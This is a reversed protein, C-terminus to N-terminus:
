STITSVSLVAPLYAAVQSFSRGEDASAWVEGNTTGFYIGAPDLRDAAMSERMVELQAGRPLGSALRKWSAGRDRTRYVAIGPPPAQRLRDHLPVVYATADDHPHIAAAFGYDSPLGASRDTWRTATGDRWYVGTHNQQFRVGSRTPHAVLHHVCRGLLSEGRPLPSRTGANGNTWSKGGDRTEYVGAASIGVTMWGPDAADIGVSHLCLGGGGPSWHPREAHENIARVPQWSIGRDDSRFLAAPEVGAWLVNPQSAHGPELHWTRKFTLDSGAPFAPNAATTWTRGLDRSVEIRPGGFTANVAAYVSEGDRPDFSAHYVPQPAFYPGEHAWRSRSASSRFVHLGKKTGVLIAVRPKTM